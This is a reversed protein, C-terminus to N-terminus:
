ILECIKNRINEAAFGAAVFTLLYTLVLVLLQGSVREPIPLMGEIFVAVSMAALLPKAIDQFYWRWKENPLIRRFMFHTGLLVYGGNLLVWVWAAGEAGYRPVAWLIAPVIFIVAVINIRASLGPWGYALQTQYPIWMFGNLLNGFVLLQLLSSTQQVLAADQTWLQLFMESFVILVMAASGLIVTVLQAGLHYFSVLAGNDEAAYLQCLRPSWAQAIPTVLAGIASALTAALTYYGYESLVLLKSLLIKDVQTLLFVLFTAVIMGGAFRRIGRLSELSFHSPHEVCPLSSYTVVMLAALTLISVFGQWLFFAQLTPSVWALVAIAGLSRLTAMSSNVINFLVQRQLGIIGSRYIGEVFRFAAVVGMISFSQVIIPESITESKLWFSALWTSALLISIVILLAIGLALIEVTRLLNRISVADCAGGTYRAMERGLTPTLGLDLLSFCSQMVAFLGIMGYAEIGLYKIYLPIFAFGMLSSWGHGLYNAFLNKKITM